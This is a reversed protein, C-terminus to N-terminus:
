AIKTIKATYIVEPSSPVTSGITTPTGTATAYFQVIIDSQTTLTFTGYVISTGHSYGSCFTTIGTSIVSFSTNNYIRPTCAGYGGGAQISAEADISYTGAPLTIVSSGSSSPIGTFSASNVVFPASQVIKNYAISEWSNGTFTQTTGNTIERTLVAVKIATSSWDTGNYTETSSLTSNFRTDGAVPSTPRQATTGVPLKVAGTYSFVTRTQFDITGINGDFSIGQNGAEFSISGDGNSAKYSRLSINAGNDSQLTIGGNSYLFISHNGYPEITLASSSTSLQTILDTKIDVGTLLSNKLQTKKLLGSIPDVILTYEDGTLTPFNSQDTIANPNLTASDIMGNLEAATVIEGAVWAPSKGNNIQPM